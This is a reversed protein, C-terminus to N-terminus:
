PQHAFPKWTNSPSGDSKALTTWNVKNTKSWAVLRTGDAPIGQLEQDGPIGGLNTWSGGSSYRIKGGILVFVTSKANAVNGM